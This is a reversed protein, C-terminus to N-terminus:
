ATEKTWTTSQYSVLDTKRDQKRMNTAKSLWFKFSTDEDQTMERLHSNKPDFFLKYCVDEQIDDKVVDKERIKCMKFATITPCGEDSYCRKLPQWITMLYDCFNEFTSTGFAADKNLELDGVGAKERSTQSQMVLMTNTQVAFTKMAKCLRKVGDELGFRSDNALVGIHDIVVCGVKRNKPDKQHNMVATMITELSLDRFTGAEDYNHILHVKDYLTSNDGCMKVWRRAIQKDTQELSVFFHDYDPNNQVFGMFMNLAVATKGVGSGAVLGIVDGLRFGYDAADIYRWCPFRTGELTDSNRFLIDKVSRSIPANALAQAERVEFTWVKDVINEAYSMQHQPARSMAKPSNVLVSLAEDRTFTNAFMLHALRYDAKSRDDVEGSWIDKVEKSKALLQSFKLPMKTDVKIEGKLRYTKEFHQVCYAEDAHSIAPLSADMQECTYSTDSLMWTECLRPNDEIKMNVSGPLRMLQLIQGVADDTNLLRMLRRSLRLYSMADLDTVKWYVHVGGGSDVIQSPELPFAPLSAVFSEKDPHTKTKLDFDVFVYQFTDVQSGDITKGPTLKSPYNPFYFVSYGESNLADLEDQTFEGEYVRRRSGDDLYKSLILRALQKM